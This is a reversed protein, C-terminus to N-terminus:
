DCTASMVMTRPYPNNRTCRCQPHMVWSRREWNGDPSVDRTGNTVVADRGELHALAHGTAAAAVLSALVADCAIEGPPFGGLRATVIPWAPDGDRRALDLCHLCASQGPLVLPGVCGHGEFASVLLHPIGLDLLENALVRDLPRVPALIVLDPRQTRDGLYPGGAKADVTPDWPEAGSLASRARGPRTNTGERDARAAPPKGLDADVTTGPHDAGSPASLARGPRAGPIRGPHDAASGTSPARGPKADKTRSRRNTISATSPSSPSSPTPNHTPEQPIPSTARRALAVAGDQRSLGLESWTLGGPTLDEPRTPEPDIVRITGVGAAALLAVIQAGVRGAGYVRVQAQRRRRMTARGGDPTSSALDLADLDPRLRDLEALPLPLPPAGADHIVGQRMLQDLLSRASPEDLGAAVAERLVHALDRTGDLTDFWQRIPRTLGNLMLARQPHLGIQLTHEDRDVCRLAPKM